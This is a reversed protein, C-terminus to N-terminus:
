QVELMVTGIASTNNVSATWNSSDRKRLQIYSQGVGSIRVYGIDSAAGNDIYLFNGTISVSATTFGAPLALRLDVDAVGGVSTTELDFLIWLTKGIAMYRYSLQDGSTLTWTQTGSGSFNGAAFAVDTWEGIKASRSRETLGAAFGWAASINEVVDRAPIRTSWSPDTGDSLLVTNAAGVALGDYATGAANGKPITGRTSTPMLSGVTESQLLKATQLFTSAAGGKMTSAGLSNSVYVKMEFYDGAVCSSIISVQRGGTAPSVTNDATIEQEAIQVGNKYIRGIAFGVIPNAFTIQGLVLYYGTQGTPVTLRTPSAAAWFSSTDFSTAGFSVTTEVASTVSVDGSQQAHASIPSGSTSGSSGSGWEVGLATSVLVQGVTGKALKKWTVAGSSVLGDAPLGDSWYSQGTNARPTAVTAFPLGDFWYSQSAIAAGAQAILVDGLTPTAPTTDPHTASLLSHTPATIAVDVASTVRGKTDVAVQPVHTADGYTGASVGSTPLRASDLTGTVLDSADTTATGGGSDADLEKLRQYIDGLMDNLSKLQYDTLPWTLDALRFASPM